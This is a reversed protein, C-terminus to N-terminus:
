SWVSAVASSFGWGGSGKKIRKRPVRPLGSAERQGCTDVLGITNQSRRINTRSGLHIGESGADNTEERPYHTAEPSGPLPRVAWLRLQSHSKNFFSFIDGILNRDGEGLKPSTQERSSLNMYILSINTVSTITIARVSRTEWARTEIRLGIGLPNCCPPAQREPSSLPAPNDNSSIHPWAQKQHLM